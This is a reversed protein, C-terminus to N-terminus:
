SIRINGKKFYNWIRDLGFVALAVFFLLMAFPIQLNFLRGVFAVSLGSVLAIILSQLHKYEFRRTQDELLNGGLARDLIALDWVALAVSSGCIMLVPPSGILRGVVALGVSVFLCIFPLWSDPYKRALLWVPGTIFAIVTWDWQEVIAFGATLSLILFVLCIIFSIKRLPM